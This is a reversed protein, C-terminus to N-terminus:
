KVDQNSGREIVDDDCLAEGIGREKEESLTSPGKSCKGWLQCM